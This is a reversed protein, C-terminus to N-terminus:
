VSHFPSRVRLSRVRHTTRLAFSKAKRRLSNDDSVLQQCESMLENVQDVLATNDETLVRVEEQLANYKAIAEAKTMGM